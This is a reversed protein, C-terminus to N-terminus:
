EAITDDHRLDAAYAKNMVRNFYQEAKVDDGRLSYLRGIDGVRTNADIEVALYEARDIGEFFLLSLEEETPAHDFVTEPNKM